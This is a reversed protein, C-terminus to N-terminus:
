GSRLISYSTSLVCMQHPGVSMSGFGGHHRHSAVVPNFFCGSMSGKSAPLLTRPSRPPSPALSVFSYGCDLDFISQRPLRLGPDPLTLPGQACWFVLPSYSDGSFLPAHFKDSYATVWSLSLGLDSHLTRAARSLLCDDAIRSGSALM